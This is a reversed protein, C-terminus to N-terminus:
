GSKLIDAPFKSCENLSLQLKVCIGTDSIFVYSSFVHTVLLFTQHNKGLDDCQHNKGLDDCKQFFRQVLHCNSLRAVIHITQNFDIPRMKLVASNVIM